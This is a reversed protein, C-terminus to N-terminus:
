NDNNYSPQIRKGSGKDCGFFDPTVVVQTPGLARTRSPTIQTPVPARARGPPAFSRLLGLKDNRSFPPIQKQVRVGASDPVATKRARKGFGEFHQRNTSLDKPARKVTGILGAQQAVEYASRVEKSQGLYNELAERVLEAETQGKM